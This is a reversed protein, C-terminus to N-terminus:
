KLSVKLNVVVLFVEDLSRNPSPNIQVAIFKSTKVNKNTNILIILVNSFFHM